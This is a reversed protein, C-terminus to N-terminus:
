NWEFVDPQWTANDKFLEMTLVDM